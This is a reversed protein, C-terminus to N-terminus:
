LRITYNLLQGVTVRAIPGQKDVGVDTCLKQLIGGINELLAAFNSASYYDSSINTLFVSDVANPPGVGISIFSTKRSRIGTAAHM